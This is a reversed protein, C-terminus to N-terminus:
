TASWIWDPTVRENLGAAICGCHRLAPPWLKVRCEDGLQDAHLRDSRAAGALALVRFRPLPLRDLALGLRGAHDDDIPKVIFGHPARIDDRLMRAKHSHRVTDGAVTDARDDHFAWTALEAHRLHDHGALQVALDRASIGAVAGSKKV